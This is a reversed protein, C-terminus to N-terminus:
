ATAAQYPVDEDGSMITWRTMAEERRRALSMACRLTFDADGVAYMLAEDRPVNGIGLIPMNGVAMEVFEFQVPEPLAAVAERIKDWSRYTRKPTHQMVRLLAAELPGKRQERKEKQISLNEIAYTIARDVWEGFKPSNTAPPRLCHRLVELYGEHDALKSVARNLKFPDTGVRKKIRNLAMELKSKYITHYIKTEYFHQEAHAIAQPLWHMLKAKSHPLVVDEWTRMKVGQTRFTMQKLGQPLNGLNYSDRMTDWVILNPDRTDCGLEQLFDLDHEAFQMVIEGLTPFVRVFEKVVPENDCMIMIGTGPERSLQISFKRGGHGETDIANLGLYNHYGSIYSRFQRVNDCYSYDVIPWPNSPMEFTGRIIENLTEFDELLPTMNNGDHLGSAPHIMPVVTGSWGLFSAQRPFGHELNSDISPDLSCATAGMLVILRPKCMAIETRLNAEACSSTLKPSPTKNNNPRCRVTNTVRVTNRKRGALRLYTNDLEYGAMGTFPVGIRDENQGPAEGILMVDCPIPGNGPVPTKDGPCDPCRTVQHCPM